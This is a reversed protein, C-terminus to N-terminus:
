PVTYVKRKGHMLEGPKGRDQCHVCMRSIQASCAHTIWLGAVGKLWHCVQGKWGGASRSM